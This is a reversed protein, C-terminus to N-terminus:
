RELARFLAALLVFGLFVISAAMTALSPSYQKSISEELVQNNREITKKVPSPVIANADLKELYNRTKAINLYAGNQKLEKACSLGEDLLIRTDAVMLANSATEFKKLCTNRFVRYESRDKEVVFMSYGANIAAFVVILGCLANKITVEPDNYRFLM